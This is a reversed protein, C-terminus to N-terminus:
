SQNYQVVMDRERKREIDIETQREREKQRDRDTEKETQKQIKKEERECNYINQRYSHSFISINEKVSSM